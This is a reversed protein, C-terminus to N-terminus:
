RNRAKKTKKKEKLTEIELKIDLNLILMFICSISSRMIVTDTPALESVAALSYVTEFLSRCIESFDTFGMTQKTQLGIHWILFSDEKNPM